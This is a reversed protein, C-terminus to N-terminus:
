VAEEKVDSASVLYEFVKDDELERRLSEARPSRKIEEVKVGAQTAWVNLHEDFQDDTVEIGAKKRVSELLLYSKLRRVANQVDEESHAHDHDHDHDHDKRLSELYNDILSQPLDFPNERILGEIIEGRTRQRAVYEWREAIQGSVHEKLAALSDFQDGLDKAFEDDLEPLHRERVERATVMFRQTQGALEENPLDDRYTFTVDREESAVLGILAEEFDPSPADDSGIIFYREEFKEGVLPVGSDDLRQLDAILVDGKELPRDVSRESAHRKQLETLQEEVEADAVEHTMKTISLNEYKEAEVEPWIDFEATFVLAKGPEHDVKTIQPAAAPTLGTEKTAEHVFEPLLDSIVTSRISDGYRSEIIKIPVKGKRFGPLELRKRYNKVAKTIEVDIREAPVEVELQREWQGKETVQTKVNVQKGRM